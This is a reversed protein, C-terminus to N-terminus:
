LGALSARVPHASRLAFFRDRPRASFTLVENTGEAVRRELVMLGEANLMRGLKIFDKQQTAAFAQENFLKNIQDRELLTVAPIKSLEVTLIDGFKSAETGIPVVAITTAAVAVAGSIALLLGLAASKLIISM